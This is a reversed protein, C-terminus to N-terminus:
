RKDAERKIERVRSKEFLYSAYLLFGVLLAISFDLGVTTDQVDVQQTGYYSLVGIATCYLWKGVFIPALMRGIPYRAIAMPWIVIDDPLSTGSTLLVLLPLRNPHEDLVRRIWRLPRSTDGFEVPMPLGRAIVYSIVEGLGAGLASALSLVVAEALSDSSIVIAALPLTYPVQILLTSNAVLALVFLAVSGGVLGEESAVWTVFRELESRVGDLADSGLLVLVVVVCLATLLLYKVELRGIRGTVTVEPDRIRAGGDGTEDATM